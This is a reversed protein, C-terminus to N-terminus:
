SSYEVIFRFCLIRRAKTTHLAWLACGEIDSNAFYLVVRQVGNHGGGCDEVNGLLQQCPIKTDLLLEPGKSDPAEIKDTKSSM